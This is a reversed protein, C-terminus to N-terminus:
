ADVDGQLKPDRCDLHIMEYEASCQVAKGQTEPDRGIGEVIVLPFARDGRQFRKKCRACIFDPVRAQIPEIEKTVDIFPNGLDTDICSGHASESYDSVYVTEGYGRPHAGIGAVIKVVHIREGRVFGKRCKACQDLPTQPDVNPFYDM